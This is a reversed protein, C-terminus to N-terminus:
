IIKMNLNEIYVWFHIMTNIIHNQHNLNISLKKVQISKIILFIHKKLKFICFWFRLTVHWVGRSSSSLWKLRTRSQTVGYVTAWWAGGDRPNELCSCQLPDPHARILPGPTWHQMHFGRDRSASRSKKKKAKKVKLKSIIISKCSTAFIIHFFRM